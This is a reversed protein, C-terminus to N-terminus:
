KHINHNYVTISGVLEELKKNGKINKTTGFHGTRPNTSMSKKCKLANYYAYVNSPPCTEDAFGTCVFVECKTRPAFNVIDFYAGAKFPRDDGKLVLKNRRHPTSGTRGSKRTDFEAFCPVGVLAITVDKDLAAAAATQAGGLSGGVVVLNKKDWEPRSKIFELARLVRFHIEGMVWKEPDCIDRHGGHMVARINKTYFDKSQNVPFGHWTAYFALVGQKARAVPVTKSADGNVWSLYEVVAPCSGAKAGVPVALYGTAPRSGYCAVEVAYLKVNKVNCKLETLKAEVPVKDLMARRKAWFQDFDEPCVNPSIIKDADFLAGIETVISPKMRHKQVGKGKLAKGNSDLVEFGFYLWGPSDLTGSFTKANGDTSFEETKLVKGEKKVILRAKTGSLPKGDKKLLVKCTATEGSKYFGDKKDLSIDGSYQAFVALSILAFVAALFKKMM